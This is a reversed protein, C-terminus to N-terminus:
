DDLFENYEQIGIGMQANRAILEPDYPQLIAATVIRVEVQDAISIKAVGVEADLETITGIIGGYTIIQDGENLSLVYRQHRKFSRQKPLFAFSYYGAVFLMIITAWFIYQM